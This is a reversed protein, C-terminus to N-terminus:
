DKTGCFVFLCFFPAISSIYILCDACVCIESPAIKACCALHLHPPEPSLVRGSEAAGLKWGAARDLCLTVVSLLWGAGNQAQYM